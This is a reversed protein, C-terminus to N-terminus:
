VIESELTSIESQHDKWAAEVIQRCLEPTEIGAKRAAMPILSHSTFGPLTNIELIYPLGSATLIFDVRGWHRCGLEHFATLADTQIESVLEDDDITDFLYETTDSEYKAHYDYFETKSRIEVIPLAKGGLIGVTIERGPIFAEVMCSGYTKFCEVADTAAKRVNDTITIGVSSGESIPKVVYKKALKELMTVLQDETDDPHVILHKAVPLKAHFFVQKGLLKDFAKRSAQSGSGTFCLKKEELIGQLQGDEGFRGHLIPFFVDIEPDELISMNEPTIDFLVTEFGAEQLAEYVNQGSQLSVQRESGIGGALVAVKLKEIPKEM